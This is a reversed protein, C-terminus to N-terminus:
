KLIGRWEASAPGISEAIRKTTNQMDPMTTTHIELLVACVAVGSPVVIYHQVRTQDGIEFWLRRESDEHVANVQGFAERILAKHASWSRVNFTRISLNSGDPARALSGDADPHWSGPVAFRCGEYFVLQWGGKLSVGIGPIKVEQKREPKQADFTPRAVLAVFCAAAALLERSDRARLQDGVISPNAAGL